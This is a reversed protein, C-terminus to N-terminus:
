AIRAVGGVGAWAGAGSVWVWKADGADVEPPTPMTSVYPRYKLGTFAADKLSERIRYEWADDPVPTSEQSGAARPTRKGASHLCM